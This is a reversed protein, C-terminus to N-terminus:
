WKWQYKVQTQGEFNERPKRIYERTKIWFNDKQAYNSDLTGFMNGSSVTSYNSPLLELSINLTVGIETVQNISPMIGWMSKRKPNYVMKSVMGPVLITKKIQSTLPDMVLINNITQTAMYIDTDYQNVVLEGWNGTLMTANLNGLQNISYFTNTTNSAYLNTTYASVVISNNTGAGASLISVSGANIKFINNDFGYMSNGFDDFYLQHKLSTFSYTAQITRTPGDIRLLENNDMTVYM